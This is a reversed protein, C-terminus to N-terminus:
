FGLNLMLSKRGLIQFNCHTAEMPVAENNNLIDYGMIAEIPEVCPHGFICVSKLGFLSITREVIVGPVDLLIGWRNFFMEIGADEQTLRISPM